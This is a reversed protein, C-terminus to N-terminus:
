KEPSLMGLCLLESCPGYASGAGAGVAPWASVCGAPMAMAWDSSGVACLFELLIGVQKRLCAGMGLASGGADRSTELTEETDEAFVFGKWVEYSTFLWPGLQEGSGWSVGYAGSEPM